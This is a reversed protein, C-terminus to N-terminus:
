VPLDVIYGPGLRVQPEGSCAPDAVSKQQDLTREVYECHGADECNNSKKAGEANRLAGFRLFALM